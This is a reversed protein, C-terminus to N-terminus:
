LMNFEIMIRLSTPTDKWYPDQQSTNIGVQYGVTTAITLIVVVFTIAAHSAITSNSFIYTSNLLHLFYWIHYSWVRFTNESTLVWRIILAQCLHVHHHLHDHHQCHRYSCDWRITLAKDGKTIEGSKYFSILERRSMKDKHCCHHLIQVLYRHKFTIYFM